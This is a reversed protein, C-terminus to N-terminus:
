KNNLPPPPTSGISEAKAQNEIASVFKQKWSGYGSNIYCQGTCYQDGNLAVKSVKILEIDKVNTGVMAEKMTLFRGSIASKQIQFCLSQLPLTNTFCSQFQEKALLDYKVSILSLFQTTLSHAIAILM